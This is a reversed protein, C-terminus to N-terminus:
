VGETNTATNITVAITAPNIEMAENACSTVELHSDWPNGGRLPEVDFGPTAYRVGPYAV